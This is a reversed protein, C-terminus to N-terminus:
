WWQCCASDTISGSSIDGRISSGIVVEEGVNVLGSAPTQERVCEADCPPPLEAASCTPLLLQAQM